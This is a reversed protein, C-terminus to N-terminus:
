PMVCPSNEFGTYNCNAGVVFSASAATVSQAKGILFANTCVPETIDGICGFYTIGVTGGYDRFGMCCGTYSSNECKGTEANCTGDSFVLNKFMPHFKKRNECEEETDQYCRQVIATEGSVLGSCCGPTPAIAIPKISLAKFKLLEPNIQYLITYSALTLILGTLAAGIWSKANDVKSANGGATIWLLGGFMMVVVALIGVVNVAGKYIGAMYKALWDVKCIRDAGEGECQIESMEDMWPIDVNLDPIEWKADAFVTIPSLFYTSIILFLIIKNIRMDM